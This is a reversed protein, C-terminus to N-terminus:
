YELMEQAWWTVVKMYDPNSELFGNDTIIQVVDSYNREEIILTFDTGETRM